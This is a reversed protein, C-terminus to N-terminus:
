LVRDKESGSGIEAQWRPKWEGSWALHQPAQDGQGGYGIWATPRNPEALRLPSLGATDDAQLAPTTFVPRRDGVLKPKDQSCAVLSIIALLCALPIAGPRYLRACSKVMTM